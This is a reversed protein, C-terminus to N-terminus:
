HSHTVLFTNEIGKIAQSTGVKPGDYVVRHCNGRKSQHVTECHCLWVVLLVTIREVKGYNLDAYPDPLGTFERPSGYLNIYCPGFAPLFGVESEGTNALSFDLSPSLSLDTYVPHIPLLTSARYANPSTALM